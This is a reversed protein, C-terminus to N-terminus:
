KGDMSIAGTDPQYVGTLIKMLTSKGTANDGLLAFTEGPMVDISVSRLATVAGFSKHIGDLAVIPSAATAPDDMDITMRSRDNSPRPGLRKLLRSSRRTTLGPPTTQRVRGEVSEPRFSRAPATGCRSMETAVLMAM